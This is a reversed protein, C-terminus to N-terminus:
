LPMLQSHSGHIPFHHLEGFAVLFNQHSTGIILGESNVMWFFVEDQYKAPIDMEDLLPLSESVQCQLITPLEKKQCGLDAVQENEVQLGSLEDELFFSMEPSDLSELKVM